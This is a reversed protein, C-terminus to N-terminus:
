WVYLIYFEQFKIGYGEWYPVASVKPFAEEAKEKTEYWGLTYSLNRQDVGVLKHRYM